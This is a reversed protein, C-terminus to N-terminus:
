KMEFNALLFSITPTAPPFLDNYAREHELSKFEKEMAVYKTDQLDEFQFDRSAAASFHQKFFERVKKNGYYRILNTIQASLIFNDPIHNLAKEISDSGWKSAMNRFHVSLQYDDPRATLQFREAAEYVRM